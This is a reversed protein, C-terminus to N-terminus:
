QLGGLCASVAEGDQGLGLQEGQTAGKLLRLLAELGGVAIHGRRRGMWGARGDRGDVGGNPHGAEARSCATFRAGVLSSAIGTREARAEGARGRELGVV